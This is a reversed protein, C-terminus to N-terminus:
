VPPRRLRRRAIVATALMLAGYGAVGGLMVAAWRHMQSARGLVLGTFSGVAIAICGLLLGFIVPGRSAERKPMPGVHESEKGNPMQRVLRVQVGDPSLEYVYEARGYLRGGTEPNWGSGLRRRYSGRERLQRVITGQLSRRALAYPFAVSALLGFSGVILSAIM